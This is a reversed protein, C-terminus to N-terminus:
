AINIALMGASIFGVKQATVTNTLTGTSSVYVKGDLDLHAVDFVGTNAVDFWEGNLDTDVVVFDCTGPTAASWVKTTSNYEVPTGLAFTNPKYITISFKNTSHCIVDSCGTTCGCNKNTNLLELATSQCNCM